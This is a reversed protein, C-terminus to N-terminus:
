SVQGKTQSYTYQEYSRRQYVNLDVLHTCRFLFYFAKSLFEQRKIQKGPNISASVISVKILCQTFVSVLQKSTNQQKAKQLQYSTMHKRFCGNTAKGYWQPRFRLFIIWFSNFRKGNQILSIHNFLDLSTMKQNFITLFLIM